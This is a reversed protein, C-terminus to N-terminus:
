NVERYSHEGAGKLDFVIIEAEAKRQRQTFRANLQEQTLTPTPVSPQEGLSELLIM